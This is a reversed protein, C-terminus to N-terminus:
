LAPHRPLVVFEAAREKRTAYFVDIRTGIQGALHECGADRLAGVILSRFQDIEKEIAKINELRKQHFDELSILRKERAALDDEREAMAEEREAMAEERYNLEVKRVGCHELIQETAAVAMEAETPERPTRLREICNLIFDKM